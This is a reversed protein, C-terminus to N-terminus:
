FCWHHRAVILDLSTMLMHFLITDSLSNVRPTNFCSLSATTFLNPLSLPTGGNGSWTCPGMGRFTIVSLFQYVHVWKYLSRTCHTVIFLFMAAVEHCWDCFFLQWLSRWSRIFAASLALVPRPRTSLRSFILAMLGLLQVGWLGRGEGTAM